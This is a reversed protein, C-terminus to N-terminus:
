SYNPITEVVLFDATAWQLHIRAGQNRMLEAMENHRMFIEQQAQAEIVCSNKDGLQLQKRIIPILVQLPQCNEQM